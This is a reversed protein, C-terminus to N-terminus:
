GSPFDAISASVCLSQPTVSIQPAMTIQPAIATQPAVATQPTVTTQPAVAVQPAITIQPTVTSKHPTPSFTASERIVRREEFLNAPVDHATPLRHLCLTQARPRAPPSAERKM